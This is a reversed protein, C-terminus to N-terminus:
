QRVAVGVANVHREIRDLAEKTPPIEVGEIHYAGFIAYSENLLDTAEALTM